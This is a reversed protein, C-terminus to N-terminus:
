ATNKADDQKCSTNVFKKIQLCDFHRFPSKWLQAVQPPTLNYVNVFRMVYKLLLKYNNCQNLLKRSIQLKDLHEGIFYSNFEDLRTVHDDKEPRM